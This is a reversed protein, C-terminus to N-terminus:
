LNYWEEMTPLQFCKQDSGLLFNDKNKWPKACANDYVMAEECQKVM